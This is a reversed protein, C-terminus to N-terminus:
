VPKSQQIPLKIIFESGHGVTSCCQIMGNHTETIIQHSIALGLGTGKGVPKTTFFPDFLRTLLHEPIGPGNDHIHISIWDPDVVTTQIHIQLLDPNSTAKIAKDELADIANAMLNMFVQNLQGPYCHILPLAGYDKVIKIGPFTTNSKVRNHLIMLTSDIGEHLDVAKLEAEDLRSFNRLSKVINRIRETGVQMSTLLKPLDERIFDLDIDTIKSKITNTPLTYEQQYLLVLNLLDEAYKHAPDLNGHIFNVPNNIEHAVGAVMQGLSSMKENQIMRVQTHQLEELAQQLAINKENIEQTREHVNQELTYSYVEVQKQAIAQEALLANVRQILHNLSEGLVGVEDQTTIPAQLYFNEEATVRKAVRTVVTLPYAIKRGLYSSLAIAIVISLVLSGLVIRKNIAQTRALFASAGREQARADNILKDLDRVLAELRLAAPSNMFDILLAQADSESLPQSTSSTELPTLTKGLEQWYTAITNEHNNLFAQLTRGDKDQQSQEEVIPTLREFLIQVQDARNLLHYYYVPLLEPNRLFPTIDSQSELVAEKLEIFIEAEVQKQAQKARAPGELLTEGAVQGVLIGIAAIGIGIGYGVSIKQSISLRNGWQRARRTLGRLIPLKPIISPM